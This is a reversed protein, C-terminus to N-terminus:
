PAPREAPPTAMGYDHGSERMVLERMVDTYFQNSTIRIERENKDPFALHHLEHLLVALIAAEFHM